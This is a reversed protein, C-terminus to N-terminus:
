QTHASQVQLCGWHGSCHSKREATRYRGESSSGDWCCPVQEMLVGRQCVSEIITERQLWAATNGTGSFFYYIFFNNGRLQRQDGALQVPIKKSFLSDPNKYRGQM